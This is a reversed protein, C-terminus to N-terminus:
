PSPTAEHGPPLALEGGDLWTNIDGLMDKLAMFLMVHNTPYTRRLPALGARRLREFLLTSTEFPVARDRSGDIVLVRTGAHLRAAAHYADMTAHRLYADEFEARDAAAEPGTFDFLASRIYQKMFTSDISIRAAHAGGAVLVVSAYRQPERAVVAPALIAGGSFGLMARPTDKLRPDLAEAHRAAHEVAYACEATRDDAHAAFRVGEELGTGAGVRVRVRETFRSPQSLLRLVSWGRERLDASWAEYLDPPYGFTGPIIVALGRVEAASTAEYAIWTREIGNTGERLSVFLLTRTGEPADADHRPPIFFMANDGEFGIAVAEPDEIGARELLPRAHERALEPDARLLVMVSRYASPDGPLESVVGKAGLAAEHARAPWIPLLAEGPDGVGVSAGVGVGLSAGVGAALLLVGLIAIWRTM